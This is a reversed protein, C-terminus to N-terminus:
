IRSLSCLFGVRRQIASEEARSVASRGKEGGLAIYKVEEEDGAGSAKPDLVPDAAISSHVVELHANYM